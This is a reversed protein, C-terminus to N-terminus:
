CEVHESGPSASLGCTTMVAAFSSPCLFSRAAYAIDISAGSSGTMSRCRADTGISTYRSMTASRRLNWRSGSSANLSCLVAAVSRSARPAISPTSTRGEATPPVPTIASISPETAPPRVSSNRASMSASGIASAAEACAALPAVFCGAHQAKQPLPVGQALAAGLPGARGFVIRELTSPTECAHPCSPCMAISTPAARSSAARRSSSCPRMTSHKWGASSRCATLLGIPPAMRMIRSAPSCSARLSPTVGRAGAAPATPRLSRSSCSVSPKSSAISPDSSSPTSAARARRGM